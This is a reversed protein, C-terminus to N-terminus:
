QATWVPPRKELFAKLGEAADDSKMVGAFLENVVPYAEHKAGPRTRLIAEKTARVALPASLLIRDLVGTVEQELATGPVVRNILGLEYATTASFLEGTFLIEFARNLPVAGALLTSGSISFIGRRVQPWGFQTGESAIRIDCNLAIGCGQALCLGNIAAITPKYISQLQVYLEEVAPPSAAVDDSLDFGSSFVDDVGTIVCAWIEDNKEVEKLSEMMQDRMELSIANKKAPRNMKIRAVRDKVSFDIM